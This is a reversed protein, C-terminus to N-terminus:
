MIKWIGTDSFLEALEGKIIENGTALLDDPLISSNAALRISHTSQFIIINAPHVSSGFDISGM